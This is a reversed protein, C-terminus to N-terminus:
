DSPERKKKLEGHLWHTLNGEPTPDEDGVCSELFHERESGPEVEGPDPVWEVVIVQGSRRMRFVAGENEIQVPTDPYVDISGGDEPVFEYDDWTNPGTRRYFGIVRGSVPRSTAADADLV